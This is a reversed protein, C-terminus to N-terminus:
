PAVLLDMNDTAAPVETVLKMRVGGMKSVAVAFIFGAYIYHLHTRNASVGFLQSEGRVQLGGHDQLSSMMM